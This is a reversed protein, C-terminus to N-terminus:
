IKIKTLNLLINNHKDKHFIRTSIKTPFNDEEGILFVKSSTFKDHVYSTVCETKNYIKFYLKM